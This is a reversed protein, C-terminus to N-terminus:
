RSSIKFAQYLARATIGVAHAGADVKKNRDVDTSDLAANEASSAALQLIESVYLKKHCSSKLSLQVAELGCFMPHSWGLIEAYTLSESFGYM